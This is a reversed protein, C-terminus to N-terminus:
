DQPFVTMSPLDLADVQHHHQCVSCEQAIARVAAARTTEESNEVQPSLVANCLFSKNRAYPSRYFHGTPDVVKM